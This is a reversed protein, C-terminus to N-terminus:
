KVLIMKKSQVEGNFRVEYFYVGNEVALNNKDRCNWIVTNLGQNCNNSELKRIEFGKNNYILIEVSGSKKIEFGIITEESFPNPTNGSIKLNHLILYNENVETVNEFQIKQIQDISVSDKDGNKLNILLINNQSLLLSFFNFVLVLLIILHKM